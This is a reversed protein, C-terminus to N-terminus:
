KAVSDSTIIKEVVRSLTEGVHTRMVLEARNDAATATQNIIVLHNGQFRDIMDAAPSVSLSTGGILLTDASQIAEMLVTGM